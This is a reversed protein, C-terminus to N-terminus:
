EIAVRRREGSISNMLNERMETGLVDDVKGSCTSYEAISEHHLVGDGDPLSCPLSEPRWLQGRVHALWLPSDKQEPVNTLNTFSRIKNRHSLVLRANSYGQYLQPAFFMSLGSNARRRRAHM